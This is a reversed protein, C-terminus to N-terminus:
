RLVNRIKSTEFKISNLTLAKLIEFVILVVFAIKIFLVRQKLVCKKQKHGLYIFYKYPM